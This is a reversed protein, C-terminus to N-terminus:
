RQKNHAALTLMMRPQNQIIVYPVFALTPLPPLFAETTLCGENSSLRSTSAALISDLGTKNANRQHMGVDDGKINQRERTRAKICKLGSFQLEAKAVTCRKWKSGFKINVPGQRILLGM